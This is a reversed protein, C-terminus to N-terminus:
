DELVVLLDGANVQKGPACHISSVKAARDAYVSFEMKMAEVILLPQDVEVMQGPEVLLKWINGSIDATVAHGEVEIPNTNVKAQLAADVQAEEDAQWLAVEKTFAAQQKTKFEAISAANEALFAEHEALSFFSEEIRLNLKGERFAERQATLEDETVEYYRVRDFFKLLWPEGNEFDSNKLFKNWIPLTRGVLQYGGPSDMGYICM